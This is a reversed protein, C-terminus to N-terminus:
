DELDDSILTLNKNHDITWVDLKEDEDLNGYAVLKFTESGIHCDPCMGAIPQDNISYLEVFENTSAPYREMQFGVYSDNDIQHIKLETYNMLLRSKAEVQKIKLLHAKANSRMAKSATSRVWGNGYISVYGISAILLGAVILTGNFLGVVLKKM